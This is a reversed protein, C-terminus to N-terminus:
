DKLGTAELFCEVCCFDAADPLIFVGKGHKVIQRQVDNTDECYGSIEMEISIWGDLKGPVATNKCGPNDCETMEFTSM